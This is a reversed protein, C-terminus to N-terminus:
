LTVGREKQTTQLVEYAFREAPSPVELGSLWVIAKKELSKKIKELEDVPFYGGTVLMYKPTPM